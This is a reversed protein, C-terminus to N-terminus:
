APLNLVIRLGSQGGVEYSEIYGGEIMTAIHKYMIQLDGRAFFVLQNPDMVVTRSGVIFARTVIESLALNIEFSPFPIDHIHSIIEKLERAPYFHEMWSFSVQHPKLPHTHKEQM